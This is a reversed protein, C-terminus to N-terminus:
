MGTLAVWRTRPLRQGAEDTDNTWIFTPGNSTCAPQAGGAVVTADEIQADPLNEDIGDLASYWWQVSQSNPTGAGVEFRTSTAIVDVWGDHDVDCPATLLSQGSLAASEALVDLVSTEVASWPLAFPDGDVLLRYSLTPADIIHILVKPQGGDSVHDARLLLRDPGLDLYPESDWEFSPARPAYLFLDQDWADAGVGIWRHEGYLSDSDVTTGVFRIAASARFLEPDPGLPVEFSRVGHTLPPAEPGTLGRPRGLGVHLYDFGLYRDIWLQATYSGNSTGPIRLSTVVPLTALDTPGSPIPAALLRVADVGDIVLDDLGDGTVDGVVADLLRGDSTVRTASAPVDGTFPGFYVRLVDGELFVVDPFLDGNLNGVRPTGTSPFTAISLAEVDLVGTLRCPGAGGDCDDDVHNNCVEQESPNVADNHDDCDDGGHEASAHGDFDADADNEDCDQDVGDYWVEVADPNVDPNTDDCDVGAGLTPVSDPPAVCGTVPHVAGFGDYDADAYWRVSGEGDDDINGDCDDDQSNGCIEPQDPNVAPDADDCDPGGLEVADFGDDDRDYARDVAGTCAALAILPLTSTWRM